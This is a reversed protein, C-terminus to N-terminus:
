RRRQRSEKALLARLPDSGHMVGSVGPGIAPLGRLRAHDGGNSGVYRKGVAPDDPDIEMLVDVLNAAQTARL